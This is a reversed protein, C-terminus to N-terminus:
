EASTSPVTLTPDSFCVSVAEVNSYTLVSHFLLHPFPTGDLTV